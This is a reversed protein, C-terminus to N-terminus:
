AGAGLTVVVGSSGGQFLAVVVVDNVVVEVIDIVPLRGNPFEELMDIGVLMGDPFVELMDIVVLTGIPFVEVLTARGGLIVGGVVEDPEPIGGLGLSGRPGGGGGGGPGKLPNM